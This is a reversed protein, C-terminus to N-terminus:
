ILNELSVLIAIHIGDQAYKQKESFASGHLHFTCILQWDRPM